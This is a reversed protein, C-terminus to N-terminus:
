GAGRVLQGPSVIPLPECAILVRHASPGQRGALFTPIGQAEPDAVFPKAASRTRPNGTRKVLVSAGELATVVAGSRSRHTRRVQSGLLDMKQTVLEVPGAPRRRAPKITRSGPVQAAMRM